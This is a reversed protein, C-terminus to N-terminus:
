LDLYGGGGNIDEITLGLDRLLARMERNVVPIQKASPNDREVSGTATEYHCRLGYAKVDAKLKEKLDWLVLYDQVMDAYLDNNAGKAKLQDTLNKEISKRINEPKKRVGM